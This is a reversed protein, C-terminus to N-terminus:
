LMERVVNAVNLVSRINRNGFANLFYRERNIKHEDPYKLSYEVAEGWHDFGSRTFSLGCTYIKMLDQIDDPHLGEAAWQDRWKERPYTETIIQPRDYYLFEENPSTADSILLDSICMLEPFACLALDVIANGRKKLIAEICRYHTKEAKSQSFVQSPHPRM